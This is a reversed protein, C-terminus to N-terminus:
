NVNKLLEGLAYEAQAARKLVDMGRQNLGFFLRPFIAKQKTQEDIQAFIMGLVIVDEGRSMLFDFAQKRMEEPTKGEQELPMFRPQAPDSREIYIIAAAVHEPKLGANTMRTRLDSLAENARRWLVSPHLPEPEEHEGLPRPPRGLQFERRVQAAPTMTQRMKRIGERLNRKAARSRAEVMM